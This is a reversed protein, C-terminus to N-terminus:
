PQSERGRLQRTLEAASWALIGGFVLTLVILGSAPVGVVGALRRALEGLPATAATWLLIMGWGIMAAFATRWPAGSPGRNVFTWIMALAPVAWWGIVWTALAFAAAVLAMRLLGRM